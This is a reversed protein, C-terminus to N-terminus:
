ARISSPASGLPVVSATVVHHSSARVPRFAFFGSFVRSDVVSARRASLFTVSLPSGRQLVVTVSIARRARRM